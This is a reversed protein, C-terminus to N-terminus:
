YGLTMAISAFQRVTLGQGAYFRTIYDYNADVIKQANQENSGGKVLRNVIEQKNINKM